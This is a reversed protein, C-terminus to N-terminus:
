MRKYLALHHEHHSNHLDSTPVTPYSVANGAPVMESDDSNGDRSDARKRDQDHESMGPDIDKM